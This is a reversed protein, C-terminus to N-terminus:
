QPQTRESQRACQEQLLFPVHAIEHRKRRQVRRSPHEHREKCLREKLFRSWMWRGPDTMTCVLWFRQFQRYSIWRSFVNTFNLPVHDGYNQVCKRSMSGRWPVHNCLMYHWHRTRMFGVACSFCSFCRDHDCGSRLVTTVSTETRDTDGTHLLINEDRM